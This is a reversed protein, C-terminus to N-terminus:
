ALVIVISKVALAQVMSVKGIPTSVGAALTHHELTSIAASTRSSDCHELTSM